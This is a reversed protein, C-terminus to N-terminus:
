EELGLQQKLETGPVFKPYAKIFRQYEQKAEAVKNKRLLQKIKELWTSEPLMTEEDATDALRSVSDETRALEPESEAMFGTIATAPAPTSAPAQQAAVHEELPASAQIDQKAQYEKKKELRQKEPQEAVAAVDMAKEEQQFVAPRQLQILSFSLVLTAAVATPILWAKKNRKSKKVDDQAASLILEDLEASPQHQEQKKYERSLGSNGELYEKLMADDNHQETM